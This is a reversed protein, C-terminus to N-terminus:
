ATPFSLAKLRCCGFFANEGIKIVRKGKIEPPTIVYVSNRIYKRIMVANNETTYEFEM